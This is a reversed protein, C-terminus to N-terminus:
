RDTDKREYTMVAISVWVVTFVLMVGDSLPEKSPYATWLWPWGLMWAVFAANRM